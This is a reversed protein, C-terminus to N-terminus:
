SSIHIPTKISTLSLSPFDEYFNDNIALISSSYALTMNIPTNIKAIIIILCTSILVLVVDTLSIRLYNDINFNIM